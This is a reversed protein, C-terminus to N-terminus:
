EVDEEKDGCNQCFWDESSNNVRTEPICDQGCGACPVIAGDDLEEEYAELLDDRLNKSSDGYLEDFLELRSLGNLRTRERALMEERTPKAM